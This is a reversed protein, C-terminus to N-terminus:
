DLTIHVILLLSLIEFYFCDFESDAVQKGNDGLDNVDHKDEAIGRNIEKNGIVM